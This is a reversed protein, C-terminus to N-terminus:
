WHWFEETTHSPIQVRIVETSQEQEPITFSCGDFQDTMNINQIDEEYEEERIEIVDHGMMLDITNDYGDDEMM